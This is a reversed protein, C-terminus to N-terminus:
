PNMFHLQQNPAVTPKGQCTSYFRDQSDHPVIGLKTIVSPNIRDSDARRCWCCAELATVPSMM